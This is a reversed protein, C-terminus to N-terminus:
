NLKSSRSRLAETLRKWEAEEPSHPSHHIPEVYEIIRVDTLTLERQVGRAWVGHLESKALVDLARLYWLVLDHDM